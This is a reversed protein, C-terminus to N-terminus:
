SFTLILDGIIEYNPWKMINAGRILAVSRTRVHTPMESYYLALKRVCLPAVFLPLLRDLSENWRNQLRSEKPLSSKPADSKRTVEVTKNINNQDPENGRPSGGVPSSFM